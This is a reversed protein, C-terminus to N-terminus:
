WLRFDENWLGNRELEENAARIFAANRRKWEAELAERVAQAGVTEFLHRLDLGMDAAGEKLKRSVMIELPQIAARWEHIAMGNRQSRDPDASRGEPLPEGEARLWDILKRAAADSPRAKGNEWRSLAFKSTGLERALDEQTLRKAKRAQRIQAGSFVTVNM